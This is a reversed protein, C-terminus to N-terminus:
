PVDSPRGTVGERGSPPRFPPLSVLPSAARTRKTGRRGVHTEVGTPGKSPALNLSFLFTKGLTGSQLGQPNLLVFPGSLDWIRETKGSVPGKVKGGLASHLWKTHETQATKGKRGPDRSLGSRWRGAGGDDRCSRGTEVRCQGAEAGGVKPHTKREVYTTAHHKYSYIRIHVHTPHVYTHTTHIRINVHPPVYTHTRNTYAHLPHVYTHTPHIRTHPTRVHPPHIRTYVHTTHIRPPYTRTHPTYLHTYTHPTHTHTNPTNVHTHTHTTYVQTRTHTTYVHVPTDTHHVQTHIDHTNTNLGM